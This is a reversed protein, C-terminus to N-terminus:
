LYHLLFLGGAAAVFSSVLPLRWGGGEPKERAFGPVAEDATSDPHPAASNVEALPPEPPPAAIRGALQRCLDGMGLIIDLVNRDSESLRRQLDAIEHNRAALEERLAAIPQEVSAALEQQLHATRTEVENAVREEVIHSVAEAFERHLAVFHQRLSDQERGADRLASALADDRQGLEKLELVIGAEFEAIRRESQASHEKIRAEVAEILAAMAQRDLNAQGVPPLTAAQRLLALGRELEAVRDALPILERPAPPGTRAGANQSLKMGVGFAVGDGFAVALSRWVSSDRSSPM